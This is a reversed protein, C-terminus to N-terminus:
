NGRFELRSQLLCVFTVMAQRAQEQYKLRKRKGKLVDQSWICTIVFHWNYLYCECATVNTPTLLMIASFQFKSPDSIQFSFNIASCIIHAVTRILVTLIIWIPLTRAMKAAREKYQHAEERRSATKEMERSNSSFCFCDDM